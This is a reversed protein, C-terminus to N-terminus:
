RHKRWAKKYDNLIGLRYLIRKQCKWGLYFWNVYLFYIMFFEGNLIIGLVRSDAVEPCRTLRSVYAGTEGGPSAIATHGGDSLGGAFGHGRHCETETRRGTGRVESSGEPLGPLPMASPARRGGYAM